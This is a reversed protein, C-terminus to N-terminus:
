LKVFKLQGVLSKDKNNVVQVLYTGPLLNSIGTQWSPQSLTALKVIIGSSNSIMVNYFTPEQSKATIALNIINTAPNPYISINGTVINNGTNSYLVTVVNSYTITSNIDEQELRYLNQGAFPTKDLFSYTGAGSSAMSGIVNFTKGNDTSREVTFNTYNQENETKWTVQVQTVNTAKAATFSLLRYAYAPNQRLVLTFRKSGFTTTDKKLVNFSYTTNHRMDLSDKKYNDMLWIDFLQPIGTITKMNLSYVGDSNMNV